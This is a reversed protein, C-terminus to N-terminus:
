HETLRPAAGPGCLNLHRWVKQQGDEFTARADYFCGQEGSVYISVYANPALRGGKLLDTQWQDTGSPAVQLSVMGNLAANILEAAQAVSATVLVAACSGIIIGAIRAAGSIPM